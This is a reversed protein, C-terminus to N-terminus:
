VFGVRTKKKYDDYNWQRSRAAEFAMRELDELEADTLFHGQQILCGPEYEEPTESYNTCIYSPEREHQFTVHWAKM